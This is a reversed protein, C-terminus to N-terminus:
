EGGEEAALEWGDQVLRTFGANEPGDPVSAAWIIEGDANLATVTMGRLDKRGDLPELWLQVGKRYPSGDANECGGSYYLGSLEIRRVGDAGVTLLYKMSRESESVSAASEEAAPLEESLEESESRLFSSQLLRVANKYDEGHTKYYRQEDGCSVRAWRPKQYVTIRYDDRICFEISGPSSLGEQPAAWKQWSVTDLYAALESGKATGIVIKGNENKGTPPYYITNVEAMDAALSCANEYNLFSLDPEKSGPDTLFCVALVACVAAAGILLWFGPKKYHLVSAVREKVGVEGFSLPCAAVKRRPLSCDLLAQSYAARGSRDLERIVREDCAMEIDRCLLIYAVWCLPNFWYVTLLLFGLPKWWHDGRRIHAREHTIVYELAEGELSSPVYILPHLVGLLFPSPVEDCAFVNGAFPISAGVSKKLRIYSILAYLLM